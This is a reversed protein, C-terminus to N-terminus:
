NPGQRSQFEVSDWHGGQGSGSPQPWPHVTFHCDWGHPCPGNWVKSSSSTTSCSMTSLTSSSLSTPRSPGVPDFPPVPIPEEQPKSPMSTDIGVTFVIDTDSPPVNGDRIILEVDKRDNFAFSIVARGGSGATSSSGIDKNGRVDHLTVNLTDTQSTVTFNVQEGIGGSYVYRRKTANVLHDTITVNAKLVSNVGAADIGTVGHALVSDIFTKQADASDITGFTGGTQVIALQLDSTSQRKKVSRKSTVPNPPPSLFGISVRIGLSAARQLQTLQNAPNGDQGDTLLVIGARHEFDNTEQDAIIEDIALAIGSGINTEGSSDIGAFSAQAPDGMPYILRPSDDFDIVTVNDPKGDSGAEEQTVLKESFDIAAQV